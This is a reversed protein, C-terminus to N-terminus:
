ERNGIGQTVPRRAAHHLRGGLDPAPVIDAIAASFEQKFQEKGDTSTMQQVTKAGVIRVLADNIQPMRDTVPQLAPDVVPTTATGKAAPVPKPKYGDPPTFELALEVRAYHPAGDPSALNLVREQMPYILGPAPRKKAKHPTPTGDGSDAAAAPQAPPTSGKLMPLVFFYAAALLALAVPAAFIIPKKM